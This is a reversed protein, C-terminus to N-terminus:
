WKRASSTRCEIIDNGQTGMFNAVPVATKNKCFAPEVRDEPVHYGDANPGKQRLLSTSMMHQFM